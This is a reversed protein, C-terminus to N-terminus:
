EIPNSKFYNVNILKIFDVNSSRNIQININVCVNCILSKQKPAFALSKYISTGIFRNDIAMSCNVLNRSWDIYVTMFALHMKDLSSNCTNWNKNYQTTYHQFYEYYFCQEKDGINWVLMNDVPRIDRFVDTM